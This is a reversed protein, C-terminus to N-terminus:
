LFIVTLENKSRPPGMSVVGSGDDEDHEDGSWAVMDEPDSLVIEGEEMEVDKNGNVERRGRERVESGWKGKKDGEDGDDNSSSESDDDSSSERESKSESDSVSESASSSSSQTQSESESGGNGKDGDRGKKDGTRGSDGLILVENIRADEGVFGVALGSEVGNGNVSAVEVSEAVDPSGIVEGGFKEGNGDSNGEGNQKIGSLGGFASVLDNVEGNLSVKGKGEELYGSNGLEVEEKLKIIESSSQCGMESGNEIGVYEVKEQSLPGLSGLKRGEEEALGDEKKIKDSFGASGLEPRRDFMEVEVKESSLGMANERLDSAMSKYPEPNEEIWDEIYEFNLFSDAISLSLEEFSFESNHM